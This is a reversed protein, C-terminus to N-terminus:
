THGVAYIPDFLWEILSRCDFVIDASLLMGSRLPIHEGYALIQDSALQVHVRFVPEQPLTGPFPIESASLITRSVSIVEGHGAGFRQFPFADYKLRVTQGPKIFGSARSPLFLEAILTSDSPTLVGITASSSVTQGLDVSVAEVRGSVPSTVIYETEAEARALREMLEAQVIEYAAAASEIEPAIATVQQEIDQIESQLLIQNQRLQLLDQRNNRFANEWNEVDSRTTLGEAFNEAAWTATAEADTLREESDRIQISLAELQLQANTRRTQLRHQEAALRHQNAAWQADSALRLTELSERLTHALDGTRTAVSLDIRAIPQDIRVIEGPEVLTETVVGGRLARARVAGTDPVLWGAVVEKRAYQANSAFLTAAAVILGLLGGFIWTGLSTIIM